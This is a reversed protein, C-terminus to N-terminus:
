LRTAHQLHGALREDARLRVRRERRHPPVEVLVV